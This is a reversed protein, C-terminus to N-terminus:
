AKSNKYLMGMEITELRACADLDGELEDALRLFLSKRYSFETNKWSFFARHAEEIKQIVESETLTERTANIAETYPNRSILTSM